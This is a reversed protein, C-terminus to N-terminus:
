ALTGFYFVAAAILIDILLTFKGFSKNGTGRILLVLGILGFVVFRWRAEEPDAFLVGSIFLLLVGTLIALGSFTGKGRLLKPDFRVRM